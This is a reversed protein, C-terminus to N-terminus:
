DLVVLPPPGPPEGLCYGLSFAVSETLLDVLPGTQYCLAKHLAMSYRGALESRIVAPPYGGGVLFFNSFLRLTKGNHRDFPQIDTLKLLVLAAQEVEHMEAFSDARCWQLAADVLQSVLEPEAPDHGELLPAAPAQRYDSPRGEPQGTLRAHLQQLDAPTPAASEQARELFWRCAELHREQQRRGEEQRSAPVPGAGQGHRDLACNHGAWLNETLREFAVRAGPAGRRQMWRDRQGIIGAFLRRTKLEFGNGVTPRM